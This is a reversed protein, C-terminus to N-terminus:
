LLVEWGLKFGKMGPSSLIFSLKSLINDIENTNTVRWM